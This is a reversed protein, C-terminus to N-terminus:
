KVARGHIQANIYTHIYTHTNLHHLVQTTVLHGGLQVCLKFDNTFCVDAGGNM